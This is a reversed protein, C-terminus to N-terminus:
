DNDAISEPPWNELRMGLSLGRSALVDKIETLSKKGLNPTKLLEVEARQVLDGIYQIAEAKLCNASRVTLELDDVPRLLIPDFLPKAEVQEVEKIDRLEVFADLQEALITSARRIAEEPDLTGNTEMDLVLKDLDTRQEVRASDVDYAIRVVPSFSADVLLRGIARDEDEADRRVSAPVYGRGMEIKIRMSISGEGTLNCIVHNPNAIEVDGDHQIDAATVPGEGSKTLTIVAENKGELSIALGKLNLLIEIIDEQVGEKSSYEHLVGDIEVETVACGPMSSLLIRRLANGLTHGFGRELPELTVKARTASITEIGVLRPRLFETVSGQM